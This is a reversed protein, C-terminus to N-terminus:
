SFAAVFDRAFATFPRPATGTADKVGSAVVTAEGRHYHAYDEILGYAQWAPMPTHSLADRMAEPPVDVFTITRGLADSLKAAMEAHSLAEPGTLTYTKGAHGNGTLAAAAAAANDRVDVVSVKAEGLAAYFRGEATITSAFGLLGQMFLNSRLFTHDLGTERIAREVAAHYRLFRVPSAEDAAFQSLKVIHRVGGRKAAAVFSMQQAEARDTSNTLLFAREIGQLVRDLSADDDFDGAVIEIGPLAAIADAKDTSRVMARAPVGRTSLLKLLETGNSGTAGTVLIM